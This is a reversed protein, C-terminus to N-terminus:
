LLEEKRKGTDVTILKASSAVDEALIGYFYLDAWNGQLDKTQERQVGELKMGLKKMLRETELNM